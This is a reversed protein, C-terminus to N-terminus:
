DLSRTIIYDHGKVHCTLCADAKAPSEEMGRERAIALSAENSLTEFARHHPGRLWVAYQNGILEKKHCTRCKRAGVFDRESANAAGAFAFIVVRVFLAGSM